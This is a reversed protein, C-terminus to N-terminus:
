RSNISIRKRMLKETNKIMMVNMTNTPSGALISDMQELNKSRSSKKTRRSLEKM